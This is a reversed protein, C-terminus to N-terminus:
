LKSNSWFRNRPFGKQLSKKVYFISTCSLLQNLVETQNDAYYKHDNNFM